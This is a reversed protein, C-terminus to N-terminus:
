EIEDAVACSKVQKEKGRGKKIVIAGAFPFLQRRPYGHLTTEIAPLIAIPMAIEPHRKTVITISIQTQNM